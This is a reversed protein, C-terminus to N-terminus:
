HAVAREFPSALLEIANDLADRNWGGQNERRRDFGSGPGLEAGQALLRARAADLSEHELAQTRGVPDSAAAAVPPFPLDIGVGDIRDQDVGLAAAAAPRAKVGVVRESDPVAVLQNGEGFGVGAQGVVLDALDVEEDAAIGDLS